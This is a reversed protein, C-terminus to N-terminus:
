DQFQGGFDTNLWNEIKSSGKYSSHIINKKNIMGGIAAGTM